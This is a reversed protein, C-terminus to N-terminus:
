RAGDRRRLICSGEEQRHPVADWGCVFEWQPRRDLVGTCYYIGEYNFHLEMLQMEGHLALAIRRLRLDEIAKFRAYHEPQFPMADLRDDSVAADGEDPDVIMDVGVYDREVVIRLLELLSPAEALRPFGDHAEDLRRAGVEYEVTERLEDASLGAIKAEDMGASRAMQKLDAPALEEPLCDAAEVYGGGDYIHYAYLGAPFDSLPRGLAIEFARAEEPSAATTSSAKAEPRDM